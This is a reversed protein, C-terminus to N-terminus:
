LCLLPERCGLQPERMLSTGRAASRERGCRARRRDIPQALCPIRAPHIRPPHKPLRESSAGSCCVSPLSLARRATSGSTMATASSSSAAILIPCRLAHGPDEIEGVPLVREGIDGLWGLQREAHERVSAAGAPHRGSRLGSRRGAPRLLNVESYCSPFRRGAHSGGKGSKNRQGSRRLM